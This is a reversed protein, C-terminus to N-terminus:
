EKPKLGYLHVVNMDEEMDLGHSGRGGDILHCGHDPCFGYFVNYAKLNTKISDIMRCYFDLNKRLAKLALRGEPGVAHMRSDYNGNYIVILDYEGSKILSLAKRNVRGVTPYIFYDIDRELFIKSISDGATSVIAAKKGAKVYVDFLTEVKLVPKTYKMIGHIEPMVGSYMSGFCVPTVSPMVSRLRMTIDNMERARAFDSKYKEYIWWAVADPNYIIVKDAKGGPLKERAKELVRENAPANDPNQGIGAIESATNKVSTICIEKEQMNM